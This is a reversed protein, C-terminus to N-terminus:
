ICALRNAQFVIISYFAFWIGTLGEVLVLRRRCGCEVAIINQEVLMSGSPSGIKTGCACLDAFALM